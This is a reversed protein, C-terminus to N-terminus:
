FYSIILFASRLIFIDAVSVLLPHTLVMHGRLRSYIVTSIVNVSSHFGLEQSRGAQPILQRNPGGGSNNHM